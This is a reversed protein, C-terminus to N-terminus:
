INAREKIINYIEEKQEKSYRKVGVSVVENTELFFVLTDDIDKNKKFRIDDITSFIFRRNYLNFPTYITIMDDTIIIKYFLNIITKTIFYIMLLLLLLSYYFKLNFELKFLEINLSELLFLVSFVVVLIPNIHQEKAFKPDKPKIKKM